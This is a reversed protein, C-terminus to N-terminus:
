RWALAALLIMLLGAAVGARPAILRSAATRGLHWGGWFSLFSLVGVALATAGGPLRVLGTGAAAGPLRVLGVAFGGALCNVALAVGLLAAEGLDISGSRDLDAQLPEKLISIVLGLPRVRLQYVEQLGDGPQALGDALAKLCIWAGLGAMALVGLLHAFQLSIAQALSHGASIALYTAGTSVGAVVLNAAVPMRTHRMGYAVGVGLNDLNSALAFALLSIWTALDM